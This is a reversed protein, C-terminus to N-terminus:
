HVFINALQIRQFYIIFCLFYAEFALCVLPGNTLIFRDALQPAESALRFGLVAGWDHGVYIVKGAQRKEDAARVEDYDDDADIGYKRRIAILFEALHEM